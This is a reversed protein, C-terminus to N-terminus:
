ERSLADGWCGMQPSHAVRLFRKGRFPRDGRRGALVRTLVALFVQAGAMVAHRIGDPCERHICDLLRFRPM